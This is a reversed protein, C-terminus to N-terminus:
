SRSCGTSAPPFTAFAESRIASRRHTSSSPADRHRRASDVGFLPVGTEGTQQIPTRQGDNSKSLAVYARGTIAGPHTAAPFTIEFRAQALLANPVALLALASLALRFRNSM